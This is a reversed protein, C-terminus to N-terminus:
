RRYATALDPLYIRFTSGQGPRSDLKVQGGQAQSLNKVIALGLGTGSSLHKRSNDARYFREFIRQQEQRPIGIGTDRVTLVIFGGDRGISAVVSGGEPTYRIANGIVNNAITLTAERDAYILPVAGDLPEQRLEIQKSAAIPAYTAISEALVADLNVTALHLHQRGSQARALTMMDAILRELRRCQDQIQSLFHCAAEPDDHIAIEVTEAFGKIAALPTKLEHSVNAIFERRMEQILHNETEDYVTVILVTEMEFSVAACRARLVRRVDDQGRLDLIVERPSQDAAVSEIAETLQPQRVVDELLNGVPDITISFYRKFTNNALTIRGVPNLVLVGSDFNALVSIAQAQQSRLQILLGRGTVCATTMQGVLAPGIPEPQEGFTLWKEPSEDAPILSLLQRLRASLSLFEEEVQQQFETWRTLQGAAAFTVGLLLAVLTMGGIVASLNATAFSYIYAVLGGALLMGAARVIIAWRRSPPSSFPM